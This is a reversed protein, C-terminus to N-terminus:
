GCNGRKNLSHPFYRPHWVDRVSVARTEGFRPRDRKQTERDRKRDKQKMRKMQIEGDKDRESEAM